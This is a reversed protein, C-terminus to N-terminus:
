LRRQVVSHITEAVLHRRCASQRSHSLYPAIVNAQFASSALMVTIPRVFFCLRRQTISKAPSALQMSPSVPHGQSRAPKSPNLHPALAQSGRLQSRSHLGGTPVALMFLCADSVGASRAGCHLRM